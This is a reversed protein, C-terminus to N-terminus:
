KLSILDYMMSKMSIKMYNIGETNFTIILMDVQCLLHLTNNMLIMKLKVKIIDDCTCIDGERCV